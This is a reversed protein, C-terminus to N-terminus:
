NTEQPLMASLIETFLTSHSVQDIWLYANVAVRTGLPKTLVLVDGPVAGDPRSFLVYVYFMYIKANQSDYSKMIRKANHFTARQKKTKVPMEALSASVSSKNNM